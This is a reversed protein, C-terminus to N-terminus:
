GTGCLFIISVFCVRQEKYQAYEPLFFATSEGLDREALFKDFHEQLTVDLSNFQRGSWDVHPVPSALDLYSHVCRLALIFRV